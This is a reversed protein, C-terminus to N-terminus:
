KAIPARKTLNLKERVAAPGIIKAGLNEIVTVARDVLQANTALVGKDLFLNDE